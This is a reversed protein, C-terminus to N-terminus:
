FKMQGEKHAYFVGDIFRKRRQSPILDMCSPFTRRYWDLTRQRDQVDLFYRLVVLSRKWARPTATKPRTRYTARALELGVYFYGLAAVGSGRAAVDRCSAAFDPPLGLFIPYRTEAHGKRVPLASQM